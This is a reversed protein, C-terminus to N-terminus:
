WMKRTYENDTLVLEVQPLLWIHADLAAKSVYTKTCIPNM